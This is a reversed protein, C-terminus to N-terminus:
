LSSTRFCNYILHWISLHVDHTSSVESTLTPTCVSPPCSLTISSEFTVTRGWVGVGAGKNSEPESPIWVPEDVVIRLVDPLPPTGHVSLGGLGKQRISQSTFSYSHKGAKVHILRDLKLAIGNPTTPPTPFLPKMDDARPTPHHKRNLPKTRTTVRLQFPIPTKIPLEPISPLVLEAQIYGYEGWPRKRVREAAVEQHWQGAWGSLLQARADTQLPSAFPLVPFIVGLRRNRHFLGFRDGVAEVSYSITGHERGCEAHFSPPLDLPLVFAFPFTLTHPGPSPYTTGQGWLVIDERVLPVTEKHTREDDRTDGFQRFGLV